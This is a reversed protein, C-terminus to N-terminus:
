NKTAHIGILSKERIKNYNSTVFVSATPCVRSSASVKM